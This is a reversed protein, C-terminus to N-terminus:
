HLSFHQYNSVIISYSKKKKKKILLIQILNVTLM